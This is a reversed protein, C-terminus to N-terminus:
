LLWILFIHSSCGTHICIPQWTCHIRKNQQSSIVNRISWSWSTKSLFSMSKIKNELTRLPHCLSAAPWGASASLCILIIFVYKNRHNHIVFLHIHQKFLLLQDGIDQGMSLPTLISLFSTQRESLVLFPRYTTASLMFSHCQVPESFYQKFAKSSFTNSSSSTKAISLRDPKKTWFLVALQNLVKINRFVFTADQTTFTPPLKAYM